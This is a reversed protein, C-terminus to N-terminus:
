FLITKRYKEIHSFQSFKLYSSEKLEPSEIYRCLVYGWVPNFKTIDLMPTALM